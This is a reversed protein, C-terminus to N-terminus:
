GFWISNCTVATYKFCYAFYKVKSFFTSYNSYILIYIYKIHCLYLLYFIVFIWIWKWYQICEYGNWHRDSSDSSNNSDEKDKMCLLITKMWKDWWNHNAKWSTLYLSLPEIKIIKWRSLLLPLALICNRIM